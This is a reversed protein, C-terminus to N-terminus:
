RLQVSSRVSDLRFAYNLRLFRVFCFVTRNKKNNNNYKPIAYFSKSRDIPLLINQMKSTWDLRNSRQKGDPVDMKGFLLCNIRDKTNAPSQHLIILGFLFFFFIVLLYIMRKIFKISIRYPHIPHCHHFENYKKMMTIMLVHVLWKNSYYDYLRQTNTKALYACQADM